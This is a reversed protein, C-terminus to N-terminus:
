NDIGGLSGAQLGPGKEPCMKFSGAFITKMKSVNKTKCKQSVEHLIIVSYHIVVGKSAARGHDRTFVVM